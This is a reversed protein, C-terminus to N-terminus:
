TILVGVVKQENIYIDVVAFDGDIDKGFSVRADIQYDKSEDIYQNIQSKIKEELELKNVRTEFVLDELGVGFNLDNLVQGQTTGLIMKIKTIISEITDSHEIIGYVYNPDDPTRIYFDKIM